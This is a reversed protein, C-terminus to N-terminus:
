VLLTSIMKDPIYDILMYNTSKDEHSTHKKGIYILM